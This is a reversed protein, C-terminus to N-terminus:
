AAGHYALTKQVEAILYVESMRRAVPEATAFFNLMRRLAFPHKFSWLLVSDGGKTRKFVGVGKVLYTGGRGRWAGGEKHLGLRDFFASPLIRSAPTPRAEVPVAVNMAGPTFARRLAGTEFGPLLLRDPHKPAVSVRAELTTPKSFAIVAAQRLIFESRRLHFESQVRARVATQVDKATSNLANSMAYRARKEANNLVSLARAADWQFEVLM